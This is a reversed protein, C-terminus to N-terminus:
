PLPPSSSVFYLGTAMEVYYVETLRKEKGALDKRPDKKTGM